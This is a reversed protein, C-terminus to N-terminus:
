TVSGSGVRLEQAPIGLPGHTAAIIIGNGSLHTSMLTAFLTQGETDLASVPEDLLWVPRKVALLRAISLRRRQGASLFAAPLDAAHALGVAALSEAVSTNEGGLFGHWFELNERATLAGKIPDRHGLYHAQEGLTLDADGGELVVEGTSPVLLGAIIRLLSSKGAGNAGSVALAGGSSIEFGLGNFIDREGRVCSVNRGYLQM